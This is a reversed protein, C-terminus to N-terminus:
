ARARARAILGNDSRQQRVAAYLYDTKRNGRISLAIETRFSTTALDICSAIDAILRSVAIVRTQERDKERRRKEEEKKKERKKKKKKQM